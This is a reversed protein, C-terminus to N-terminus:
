IFEIYESTSITLNIVFYLFVKTLLNIYKHLKSRDKNGFCVCFNFYVQFSILRKGSDFIKSVFNIFHTSFLCIKQVWRSIHNLSILVPSITLYLTILSGIYYYRSLKDNLFLREDVIIIIIIIIFFILIICPRPFYKRQSLSYIQRRAPYYFIAYRGIFLSPAEYFYFLIM